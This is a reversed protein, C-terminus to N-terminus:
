HAFLADMGSGALGALGTVMGAVGEGSAAEAAGQSGPIFSTAGDVVDSGLSVPSLHVRWHPSFLAGGEHPNYIQAQAVTIMGMTDGLSNQFV